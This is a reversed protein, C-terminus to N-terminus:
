AEFLETTETSTISAGLVTTLEGSSTNFINKSVITNMATQVTAADLTELPDLLSLTVRRGGATGFVMQLRKTM